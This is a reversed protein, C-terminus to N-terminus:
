YNSYYVSINVIKDESLMLSVSYQNKDGAYINYFVYDNMQSKNYSIDKILGEM